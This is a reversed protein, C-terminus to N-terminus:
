LILFRKSVRTKHFIGTASGRPEAMNASSGRPAAAPTAPGAEALDGEMKLIMEITHEVHGSLDCKVSSKTWLNAM